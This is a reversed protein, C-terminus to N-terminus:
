FSSVEGNMVAKIKVGELNVDINSFNVFYRSQEVANLYKMLSDLGGQGELSIGFGTKRSSAGTPVTEGGFSISQNFGNGKALFNMEKPFNILEDKNILFNDMRLLYKASKEKDAQLITILEYSETQIQLQKRLTQAKEAKNKIDWGLVFVVAIMLCIVAVGAIIANIIRKRYEM